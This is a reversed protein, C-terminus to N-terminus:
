ELMADLQDALDDFMSGIDDLISVAKKLADHVHVGYDATCSGHVALANQVGGGGERGGGGGGMGSDVSVGGISSRPPKVPAPTPSPTAVPTQPTTPTQPTLPTLPTRPSQSPTPSSSKPSAGTATPATATAPPYYGPPSPNHNHHPNPPSYSTLSPPSSGPTHRGPASHQRVPASTIATSPPGPTTMSHVLKFPKPATPPPAPKPSVPPPIAVAQRKIQALAPKPSVPPKPKRALAGEATGKDPSERRPAPGSAPTPSSVPAHAHASVHAVLQTQPLPQQETVVVAGPIERRHSRAGGSPARGTAPRRTVPGGGGGGGHDAALDASFGRAGQRPKPAGPAQVPHRSRCPSDSGNPDGGVSGGGGSGTGASVLGPVGGPKLGRTGAEHDGHRGGPCSRRPTSAATAAMVTSVAEEWRRPSGGGGDGGGGEGDGLQAGATKPKPAQPSASATAAASQVSSSSTSSSSSSSTRTKTPTHPPTYPPAPQSHAHSHRPKGQSSVSGRHASASSSSSSTTSTTSGQSSQQRMTRAEKKPPGGGGGGGQPVDDHEKSLTRCRQTKAEPGPQILASQLETSLESDQFTTMRPSMVELKTIGIEQLDEWTIDTIFDINEYGNQVLVQHYQSLGIATLWDGLSAPKQDPLYETVSLKNIESTVKKRHGPKTVGIATLDTDRSCGFAQLVSSVLQSLFGQSLM